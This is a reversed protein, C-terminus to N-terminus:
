CICNEMGKCSCTPPHETQKHKEEVTTVLGLDDQVVEKTEKEKM